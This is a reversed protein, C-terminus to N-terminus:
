APESAASVSASEPEGPTYPPLDRTDLRPLEFRADRGVVLRRRVTNYAVSYGHQELLRVTEGTYTGRGGWPYCFPVQEQGTLQRIWAVGDRLEQDQEAPTLRSLMRHLRTHYGFVMGARAMEGIMREDLYLTRAFAREDGLHRAFLTDLIRDSVDFPLEYNLLNKIAREDSHEWADEGFVRGAQMGAGPAAMVRQCEDLVARGFADPGLAALLFHTKHVAPVRRAPGVTEHTVFFLGKLRRASLMPLVTAYHDIFGDDFTLAAADSPLPTRGDVAATVRDPDVVTYERELWDLQRSFLAPPLARIGPFDTGESDRVYHYMVVLCSPTTM